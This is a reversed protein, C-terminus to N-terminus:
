GLRINHSALRCRKAHSRAVRINLSDSSCEKPNTIGAAWGHHTSVDILNTWGDSVGVGAVCREFVDVFPKLFALEQDDVGIEGSRPMDDAKVSKAPIGVPRYVNIHSVRIGLKVGAVPGITAGFIEVSPVVAVLQHVCSHNGTLRGGICSCDVLPSLDVGLQFVGPHM